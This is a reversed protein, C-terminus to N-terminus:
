APPPPPEDIPPPPLWPKRWSIDELAKESAKWAIREREQEWWKCAIYGLMAGYVILLVGRSDM